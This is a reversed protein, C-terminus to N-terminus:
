VSLSPPGRAAPFVTAVARTQRPEAGADAQRERWVPVPLALPAPLDFASAASICDPCLHPPTSVPSGNADLTVTTAAGGICLEVTDGMPAQGRAVAMSVSSIALVLSLLLAFLARM